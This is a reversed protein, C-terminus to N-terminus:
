LNIPSSTINSRKLSRFLSVLFESVQTKSYISGGMDPVGGSAGSGSLGPASFLFFLYPLFYLFLSNQIFPFSLLLVFHCFLLYNLHIVLQAKKVIIFMSFQVTREMTLLLPCGTPLLMKVLCVKEWSQMFVNVDVDCTLWACAYVCKEVSCEQSVFWRCNHTCGNTRHSYPRQSHSTLTRLHTHVKGQAAARQSPRHSPLAEMGERVTSGTPKLCTM